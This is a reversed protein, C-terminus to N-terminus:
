ANGTLEITDEAGVDVIYTNDYVRSGDREVSSYRINVGLRRAELELDECRVLDRPYVKYEADSIKVCRNTVRVKAM